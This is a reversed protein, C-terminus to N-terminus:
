PHINDPNLMGLRGLFYQFKTEDLAKTFVDAIQDESNIFHLEIHGKQINDKIFHYRIDIHKTMSHHVPNHSIAIASTSDCFIPIQSIKFGYDRLQTQMWIVQSCCSAAAVYEAEATSTSVCTQKKSTWSVLRGGLFQCSGSTSKRDLKCGGYDSDTFANLQFDSKAPYWLGLKPTGKLYKFIRKVAVVHSEMPNAQYRACVCTSFMIDPRSAILYLLSGIMGRYRKQDVPKGNLDADIKYGFAMPTKATNSKEMSFRTLLNKVYNEQNIFIGDTSQKIQLGLFTTMEGIMSMEFKSKMLDAFKVSLSEDTSGFIIDDVYIQVILLHKNFIKRFLTQDISGRKFGSEELFTSLTAYWARPAQKLGYVAKQLKFSHDPFKPDEFGPPQQIYVERDIEGHLFACKVDMQFVKFNKHAAYALFIRIAEIRAVPAYTEDYDIGEQQSYGKVVLRAKNRCIIGQDDTKNRYVWRSGIVTVDPPTPVLNWVDNREFEALEEQMAKVWDPDKIASHITKPENTSLFAGFLCENTSAARTQIALNPDGIIQDTPHNRTWKILRNEEAIIIPTETDWQEEGPTEDQFLNSPEGMFSANPNNQSNPSQANLPPNPTQELSSTHTPPEGEFQDADNQNTQPIVESPTGTPDILTTLLESNYATKPQEFLLDLDIEIDIDPSPTQQIPNQFINEIMKSGFHERDLKRVYFEDFHVDTSEEIVRTRKNLVRYAASSFSYGLFIGEDSRSEFKSLHDKNNKVFCRCGFIHFFKINPKRNNIVEYPTKHLHKHILSRNQTYCATAIAEAWFYQPLDAFILMSRAAECLTRNRREVVGNQQPTYPASFNHEIGKDKLFSDLTNNKFELGNDSRIRRVPRKLKLEIQKIFNIMEEPAESKLRLFFVWTFRSFGDVVVLIYKKGQITQTKAPGCLDIHLLELPESVSSESISKHTSKSLKGKECAACLTENDLKLLPLGRVLDDGILKNIYGFNLHSLRRHWLWSIDAPAKSLLCIDPKGYILDMDLPYMNGARDSDVIVDKTKADMILSRQKTFLVELNNDCLQSVSILNHKLDDVFAVKKITFNGNTINGYGKIKAKMNNGFTVDQNTQIPKFDRLYNRNGTM